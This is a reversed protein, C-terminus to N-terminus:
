HAPSTAAQGPADESRRRLRYWAFGRAGGVDGSSEEVRFWPSFRTGVDATGAGTAGILRWSAPTSSFGYLLFIAGPAAARAVGSAYRDRGPGSLGHYCGVDLVLDFPRADLLTDLHTVDGVRFDAAVGSQAARRRAEEIASAVFDIGVVEWGLSALHVATGGTGCGLDLFRGRPLDRVVQLLSDPTEGTDWRPKGHAYTLRYFLRGVGERIM